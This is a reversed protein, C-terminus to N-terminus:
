DQNIDKKVRDSEAATMTASEISPVSWVRIGLNRAAQQVTSVLFHAYLAAVYCAYLSPLSMGLFWSEEWNASGHMWEHAVVFPLPAMIAMRFYPYPDDTVHALVIRTSQYSCLAGLVTLVLRPHHASVMTPAALWLAGLVLGLLFQALSMWAHRRHSADRNEEDLRKSVVQVSERVAGLGGIFGFSSLVHILGVSQLLPLVAVPLLSAATSASILDPVLRPQWLGPGLLGTILLIFSVSLEGETDGVEGYRFEGTCSEERCVCFPVICLVTLLHELTTTQKESSAHVSWNAIFFPLVSNVLLAFAAPGGGVQVSTVVALAMSWAAMADCGHDFLQGLPTATACRRAQAGDLVDGGLYAVVLVAELIYAWRPATAVFDPSYWALLTYMVLTLVFNGLTIVNPPVWAPLQRVLRTWVPKLRVSLKSSERGTGVHFEYERLHRLGRQSIYEFAGPPGPSPLHSWPHAGTRRFSTPRVGPRPRYFSIPSPSRAPHVPVPPSLSQRGRRGKAESQEAELVGFGSSEQEAKSGGLVVECKVPYHDSLPGAEAVVNVDRFVIGPSALAFDSTPLASSTHMCFEHLHHVTPQGCPLWSVAGCSLRQAVNKCEASRQEFNFDGVVLLHEKRLADQEGAGAVCEPAEKELYEAIADVQRRREEAAETENDAAGEPSMLHVHILHLKSCAPPGVRGSIDLVVHQFGKACWAMVGGSKPKPLLCYHSELVPLRTVVLLGGDTIQPPWCSAAAALRLPPSKVVTYGSDELQHFHRVWQHCWVSSVVEQLCVIDGSLLGPMRAANWHEPAVHTVKTSRKGKRTELHTSAIAELIADARVSKHALSSSHRLGAPWLYTNFTVLTLSPSASSSATSALSTTTAGGAVVAEAAM